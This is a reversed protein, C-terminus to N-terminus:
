LWKKRIMFVLMGVGLVGMVSLVIYYGNETKLEPMNEFNMGYVGAIFSLPIFISSIITLVKIINNLRNNLNSNYLDMLGAISDKFGEATETVYNIHDSVDRYYKFTTEDILEPEDRMLQRMADKLPFINKRIQMLKKRIKLIRRETQILNKSLLEDELQQIRNQLDDLVLYYNDVIVDILVLMLYDAQKRRVRGKNNIIRDRITNFVDGETEQFSILYNKGLVFSVHEIAISGMNKDLSLMKLSFLLYTGFDEVKPLLDVALIDELLLAHFDYHKGIDELLATNNLNGIDVWNICDEKLEAQIDNWNTAKINKYTAENYRYLEVKCTTSTADGTYVLAGPPLGTTETIKLKQNSM